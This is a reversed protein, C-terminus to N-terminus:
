CIEPPMVNLGLKGETAPNRPSPVRPALDGQLFRVPGATPLGSVAASQCLRCFLHFGVTSQFACTTCQAFGYPPPIADAYGISDSIADPSSIGATPGKSIVIRFVVFREFYMRFCHYEVQSIRVGPPLRIYRIDVLIFCLFRKFKSGDRFRASV